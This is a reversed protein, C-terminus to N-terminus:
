TPGTAKEYYATFDSRPCAYSVPRRNDTRPTWTYTIEQNSENEYREYGNALTGNTSRRRQSSDQTPKNSRTTSDDLTITENTKHLGHAHDYRITCPSSRLRGLCYSLSRRATFTIIAPTRFPRSTDTGTKETNTITIGYCRSYRGTTDKSM